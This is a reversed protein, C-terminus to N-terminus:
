IKQSLANMARKQKSEFNERYPIGVEECIKELLAKARKLSTAEMEIEYDQNDGYRNEDIALTLDEYQKEIRLTSLSAIIKLDQPKIYLSEIFDSIDGEPFVQNQQFLDFQDRLLNQSKELLGEAMPLKLTMVYGNLKRIRLSLGLKRLDRNETDIYYNKQIFGDSVDLSFYNLLKEYDERTLLAKAEIEISTAM